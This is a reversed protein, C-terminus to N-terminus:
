ITNKGGPLHWFGVNQKKESVLYDKKKPPPYIPGNFVVTEKKFMEKFFGGALQWLESFENKLPNFHGSSFHKRRTSLMLSHVFLVRCGVCTRFKAWQCGTTVM